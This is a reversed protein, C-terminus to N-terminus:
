SLRLSLRTHYCYMGTKLMRLEAVTEGHNEPLGDFEEQLTTTIAHVEVGQDDLEILRELMSRSWKCSRGPM